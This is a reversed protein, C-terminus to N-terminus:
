SISLGVEPIKQHSLLEKRKKGASVTGLRSFTLSFWM